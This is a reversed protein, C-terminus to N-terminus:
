VTLEKFSTDINNVITKNYRELYIPVYYGQSATPETNVSPTLIITSGDYDLPTVIKFPYTDSTEPQLEKLSATTAVMVPSIVRTDLEYVTISGSTLYRTTVTDVDNNNRKLDVLFRPLYSNFIDRM